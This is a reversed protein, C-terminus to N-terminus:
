KSSMVKPGNEDSIILQYNPRLSRHWDSGRSALQLPAALPKPPGSAHAPLAPLALLTGLGQCGTLQRTFRDHFGM